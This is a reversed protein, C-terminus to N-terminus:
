LSILDIKSLAHGLERIKDFLEGNKQGLNVEQDNLKDVCYTIMPLVLGGLILMVIEM